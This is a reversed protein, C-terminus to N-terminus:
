IRRHVGVPGVFASAERPAHRQLQAAVIEANGHWTYCALRRRANARLQERLAPDAEIARL